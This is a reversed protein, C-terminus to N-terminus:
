GSVKRQHKAGSIRSAYLILDALILLVLVVCFVITWLQTAARCKMEPSMCLSIINGPVFVAVLSICAFPIDVGLKIKPDPILIHAIALVVFLISLVGLVEGAWHCAMVTEGMVPCVAFWSRIGIMYVVSLALMLIETIGLKFKEKNVIM